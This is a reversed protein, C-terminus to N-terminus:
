QLIVSKDALNRMTPFLIPERSGIGQVPLRGCPEAEPMNIQSMNM